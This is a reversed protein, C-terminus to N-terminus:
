DIGKVTFVSRLRVPRGERKAHAYRQLRSVLVVTLSTAAFVMVTTALCVLAFQAIKGQILPLCTMITVGAPIFFIPMYKLLFNSAASIKTDDIIGSILLTLLIVMSCINGPISVPLTEAVANGVYCVGALFAMQIAFATLRKGGRKAKDRKRERAPAYEAAAERNEDNAAECAEANTPTRADDSTLPLDAAAPAAAHRTDHM